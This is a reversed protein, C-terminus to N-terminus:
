DNGLILIENGMGNKRTTVHQINKGYNCIVDHLFMFYLFFHKPNRLSDLIRSSEVSLFMGSSNLVCM